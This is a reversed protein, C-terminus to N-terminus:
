FSNLFMKIIPYILNSPNGFLDYKVNPSNATDLITKKTPATLRTHNRQRTKGIYKPGM